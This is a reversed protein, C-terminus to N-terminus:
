FPTFYSAQRSTDLGGYFMLVNLDFNWAVQASLGSAYMM